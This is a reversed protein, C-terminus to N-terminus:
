AITAAFSSIVVWGLGNLFQLEVTSGVGTLSITAYGLKTEPALALSFGGAVHVFRKKQGDFRGDPLTFTQATQTVTLKSLAARTNLETSDTAEEIATEGKILTTV